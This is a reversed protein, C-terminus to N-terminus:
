PVHVLSSRCTTVIFSSCRHWRRQISHAFNCGCRCPTELDHLADLRNITLQFYGREIISIINLTAPKGWFAFKRGFYRGIYPILVMTLLLELQQLSERWEREADSIYQSDEDDSYTQSGEESSTISPSPLDDM